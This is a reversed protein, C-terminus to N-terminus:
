CLDVTLVLLKVTYYLEVEPYPNKILGGQLRPM